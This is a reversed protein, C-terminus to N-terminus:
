LLGFIRGANDILAGIIAGIVASAIVYKWYRKWWARGWQCGSNNMADLRKIIEVDSQFLVWDRDRAPKAKFEEQDIEIHLGQNSM